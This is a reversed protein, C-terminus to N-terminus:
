VVRFRELVDPEGTIWADVIRATREYRLDTTREDYAALHPTVLVDDLGQFRELGPPDPEGPLVDTAYGALQGEELAEQVAAQDVISGRATNVLCADEPLEALEDAGILGETTENLPTHVTLVDSTALLEEFGDTYEFGSRKALSPDPEIDHGRVRTDLATLREVVASGIKGTGLVGVTVDALDRGLLHGREWTPEDGLATSLGEPVRRILALIFGLAHNAVSTTAYDHLHFGQVDHTQMWDEPLHDFGDSRTVIAELDEFRDLTDLEVPDHIMLSLVDVDSHDDALEPSLERQEIRAGEVHERAFGLEQDPVSTLVM